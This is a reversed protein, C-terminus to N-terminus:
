HRRIEQSAVVRGIIALNKIEQNSIEWSHYHKSYPMVRVFGSMFQLRKVMLFGDWWFSYIGDELYNLPSVDIAIFEGSEIEGHMTDDPM